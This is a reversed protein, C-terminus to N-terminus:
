YILRQVIDSFCIYVYHNFELREITGKNFPPELKKYMGDILDEPKPPVTNQLIEKFARKIETLKEEATMKELKEDSVEEFNIKLEM